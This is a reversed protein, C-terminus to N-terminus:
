FPRDISFWDAIRYRDRHTALVKHPFKESIFIVLTEFTPSIKYLIEKNQYDIM